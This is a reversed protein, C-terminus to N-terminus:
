IYIYIHTHTPIYTPEYIYQSIIYVSSYTKYEHLKRFCIVIIISVRIRPVRTSCPLPVFFLCVARYLDSCINRLNERFDRKRGIFRKDRAFLARTYCV